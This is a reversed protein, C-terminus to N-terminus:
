QAQESGYNREAQTGDGKGSNVEHRSHEGVSLAGQAVIECPCELASLGPLCDLFETEDHGAYPQCPQYIIMDDREPSQM